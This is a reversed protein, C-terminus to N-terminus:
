LLPAEKVFTNLIKIHLAVHPCDEIYEAMQNLCSTQSDPVEEMILQLAEITERKFEFNGDNSKLCNALFNVLLKFKSPARKILLKVSRIIDVKFEDPIDNVFDYIKNLL